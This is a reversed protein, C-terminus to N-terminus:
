LTQLLDYYGLCFEEADEHKEFVSLIDLEECEEYHNLAYLGLTAASNHLYEVTARLLALQKKLEEDQIDQLVATYEKNFHEFWSDQIIGDVTSFLRELIKVEGKFPITVAELHYFRVKEKQNRM